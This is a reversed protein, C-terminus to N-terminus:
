EAKNNFKLQEKFIKKFLPFDKFFHRVDNINFQIYGLYGIRASFEPTSDKFPLKEVFPEYNQRSVYCIDGVMYAIYRLFHAFLEIDTMVKDPIHDILFLGYYAFENNNEM